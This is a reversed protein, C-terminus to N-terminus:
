NDGDGGDNGDKETERMLRQIVWCDKGEVVVLCGGEIRWGAAIFESVDTEMADIVAYEIEVVGVEWLYAAKAGTASVVL